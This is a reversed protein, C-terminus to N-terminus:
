ERWRWLRRRVPGLMLGEVLGVVCMSLLALAYIGATDLNTRAVALIHGLGENAGLAEALIVVRMAGGVAVTCGSLVAPALARGYVAAVRMSLPFRYVRVMELLHSDVASLGELVSVYLIPAAMLAVIATVMLSGMGLWLMALMVVVVGPVSMLAWRFPAFVDRFVPWAGALGGCVLGAALGLFLGCLTRRLSAALHVALFDPRELLRVLAELTELPPAVALGSSRRAAFEWCGLALALGALRAAARGWTM